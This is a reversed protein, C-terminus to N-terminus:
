HLREFCFKPRPESPHAARHPLFCPAPQESRLFISSRLVSRRPVRRSASRPRLCIQAPRIESFPKRIFCLRKPKAIPSAVSFSVKHVAFLRRVPLYSRIFFLFCFLPRAATSLHLLLHLTFSPTLARSKFNM